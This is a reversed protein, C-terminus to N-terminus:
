STMKRQTTICSGRMSVTVHLTFRGTPSNGPYGHVLIYNWGLTSTEFAVSSQQPNSCGSDDDNSTVCSLQDCSDTSTAMVTIWTDYNTNPDCTTARRSLFHPQFYTLQHTADVVLVPCQYVRRRTFIKCTTATQEFNIGCAKITAVKDAHV